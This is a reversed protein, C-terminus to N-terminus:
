QVHGLHKTGEMDWRAGKWGGFEISLDGHLQWKQTDGM